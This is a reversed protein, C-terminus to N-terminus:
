GYKKVFNSISAEQETSVLSSDRSPPLSNGIVGMFETMTKISKLWADGTNLNKAHVDRQGLTKRKKQSGVGSSEDSEEGNETNGKCDTGPYFHDEFLKTPERFTGHLKRQVVFMRPDHFTKLLSKLIAYKTLRKKLSDHNRHVVMQNARSRSKTQLSRGCTEEM